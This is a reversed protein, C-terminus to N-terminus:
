LVNGIFGRKWNIFDKINQTWKWEMKVEQIVLVWVWCKIWVFFDWTVVEWIKWSIQVAEFSCKTIILKKNEFYTYVWPWPTLWRWSNFLEEASKNFDLEWYEKVIKKCYTAKNENQPILEKEWKEYAIITQILFKWSQDEFKKFLIETTDFEDIKIPLIDIIDWEDMWESMQMISVWTVTDWNMLASQIPSAWRYLPLISGHINICLKKPINLIETPLIKGYAVVVFYDVSFKKISDIFYENDRIKSPTFVPIWKEVGFMKVWTSTIIQSRWIPKDEWTVIFSVEFNSDNYIDELVRLALWPTWFFWIKLM